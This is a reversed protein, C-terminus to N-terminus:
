VKIARSSPGTEHGLKMIDISNVGLRHVEDQEEQLLEAGLDGGGGGLDDEHGGSDVDAAETM